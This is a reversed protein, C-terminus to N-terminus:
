APGEEGGLYRELVRRVKARARHLLVRQNTESIELANCVESSGWGLVDRLRIVERQNPALADIAERVLALTENGLLREEPIVDWRVPLSTWHRPSQPHDDPLFRDPDVAPEDDGAAWVSSFPTSRNERQGRTKATNVLIRFIWTRLSSRGEFADLGRLVGVWADQVVEEAVARSSVYMQALRLMPAHYRDVLLVYASEEGARLAELVRRDEDSARIAPQDTV